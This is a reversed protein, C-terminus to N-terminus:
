KVRRWPYFKKGFVIKDIKDIGPLSDKIFDIFDERSGDPLSLLVARVTEQVTKKYLLDLNCIWIEGKRNRLEVESRPIGIIVKDLIELLREAERFKDKWFSLDDCYSEFFLIVAFRAANKVFEVYDWSTARPIRKLYHTEYGNCYRFIGNDILGFSNLVRTICIYSSHYISLDAHGIVGLCFDVGMFAFLESLVDKGDELSEAKYLASLLDNIFRHVKKRFNNDNNAADIVDRSSLIKISRIAEEKFDRLSRWLSPDIGLERLYSPTLLKMIFDTTVDSFDDAEQEEIYGEIYGFDPVFDDFTVHIDDRQDMLRIIYYPVSDSSGFWFERMEEKRGELFIKKL